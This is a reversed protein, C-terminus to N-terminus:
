AIKTRRRSKESRKSPICNEFGERHLSLFQTRVKEACFLTASLLGAHPARIPGALAYGIAALAIAAACLVGSSWYEGYCDCSGGTWAM